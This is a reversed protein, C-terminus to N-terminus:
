EQVRILGRAGREAEAFSHNVFTYTGPERFHLEVFGAQAPALDLAQAGGTGGPNGPGDPSLQYAGETYVTDFQGGVVHFSLGQSPGAALM